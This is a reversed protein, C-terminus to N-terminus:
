YCLAAHVESQALILFDVAAMQEPRLWRVEEEATAVGSACADACLVAVAPCQTLALCGQWAVVTCLAHASLYPTKEVIPGVSGTLGDQVVSVSDGEAFIGSAVFQLLTCVSEPLRRVAEAPMAHGASLMLKASCVMGCCVPRRVLPIEASAATRELAESYAKWLAKLGGHHQTWGRCVACQPHSTHRAYM